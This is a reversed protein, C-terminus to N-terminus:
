LIKKTFNRKLWFYALQIYNLPPIGTVSRELVWELATIDPYKKMKIKTDKLQGEFIEQVDKKTFRCIFANCHTCHSPDQCVDILHPHVGKSLDIDPQHLLCLRVSVKKSIPYPVNYKCNEPIKKLHIKYLKKLHHHRVDRLKSYVSRVSRM